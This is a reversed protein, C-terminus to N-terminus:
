FKKNLLVGAGWIPNNTEQFEAAFQLDVNIWSRIMGMESFLYGVNQKPFYGREVTGGNGAYSLLMKYPLSVSLASIQGSLGLHHAVFRNNVVLNEEPDYTFFPAGLIRQEYTWGSRYTLYNNFYADNKHPATTNTSQNKTYYFEYILSNVLKEKEQFNFFIGYRGDPFNAFRSGTGDEFIHNYILEIELDQLQKTVYLEYSGLHNGLVNQRDGEVANEGGGRGTFVRLYDTFGDPQPGTTVSNGGWQAFHQIGARIRWSDDPRYIFHLSKHHVRARSVHRDEELMYEALSAEFGFSKKNNLYIIRITELQVGPLPRANLSWLINENTASLGNYLEERQKRGAIVRLWSNTFQLYSEDIFVNDEAGDRALVGVGAEMFANETLQYSAKVTVWGAFSTNEAIRGRRNHYM